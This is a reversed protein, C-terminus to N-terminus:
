GRVRHGNGALDGSAFIEKANLLETDVVRPRGRLEVDRACLELDGTTTRAFWRGSDLDRAV